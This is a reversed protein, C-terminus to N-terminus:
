EFIAEKIFNAIFLTLGLVIVTAISGGIDIDAVLLTPMVTVADAAAGPLLEAHAPTAVSVAAPAAVALAARAAPMAIRREAMKPAGPVLALSTVVISFMTAAPAFCRLKLDAELCDVQSSMVTLLRGGAVGGLGLPNM